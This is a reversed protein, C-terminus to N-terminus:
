ARACNCRSRSAATHEQVPPSLACERETTPNFSGARWWGVFYTHFHSLVCVLLLLVARIIACVIEPLVCLPWPAIGIHPLMEGITKRAGYASLLGCRGKAVEFARSVACLLADCVHDIHIWCRTCSRPLLRGVRDLLKQQLLEASGYVNSVRVVIGEGAWADELLRECDRKARRYAFDLALRGPELAVVWSSVYVVRRAKALAALRISNRVIALDGAYTYTTAFLVFDLVADTTVLRLKAAALVLEDETATQLDLVHDDGDHRSVSLCQLGAASARRCFHKALPSRAGLAVIPM